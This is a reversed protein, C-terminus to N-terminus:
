TISSYNSRLSLVLRVFPDLKSVGDIKKNPLCVSLRPFRSQRRQLAKKENSAELMQVLGKDLGLTTLM